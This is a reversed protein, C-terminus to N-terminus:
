PTWGAIVADLRADRLGSRALEARLDKWTRADAAAQTSRLALWWDIPEKQLKLNTLAHRLATQPDSQLHLATWAHERAHLAQEDGRQRSAAFRQELAALDARWQSDNGQRRALAQRMLVADSPPLDQLAALARQPQSAQLLLDALALSTYVDPARQLSAKFAQEAQTARGARAEAEGLLSYLWAQTSADATQDMLAQLGARAAAHRGTLSDLEAQCAGAHLTAGAQGVRQCARGADTYRAELRDLTALTLWAQAQNPDTALARPLSARAASFRHQAQEVTAQLVAARVPADARGWWPALLAQAHGLHRPDATSRALSLAQQAADFVREPPASSVVPLRPALTALVQAGHTPIFERAHLPSHAGLLLALGGLLPTYSPM